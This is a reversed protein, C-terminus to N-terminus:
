LVKYSENFIRKEKFEKESLPYGLAVLSILRYNETINCLKRIEDAYPKKDGAVWCSAINFYRAALLMNQTATSGDELYYKTEKSFVIICAAGDKIFRGTEAIESLKNLLVKSKVLVMECPQVNRATAALKGAKIIKKLIKDDILDKKFSRISRRTYLMELGDMDNGGM